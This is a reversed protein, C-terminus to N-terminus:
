PVLTVRGVQGTYDKVKPTVTKFFGFASPVKQLMIGQFTPKTNDSLTFNGSIRGNSRTISLAFAADVPTEIVADANTIGVTRVFPTGSLPTLTLVTNHTTTQHTIVSTGTVANYKSGQASLELHTWGSPYHQDDLIPRHWFFGGTIDTTAPVTDFNLGGTLLGKKAYLPIFIRWFSGGNLAGSITFATGDALIGSLSLAGTKTLSLNGLGDGQPYDSLAIGSPQSSDSPFAITYNQTANSPGLLGAPALTTASFAAHDAEITSVATPGAPGVESVNGQLEGSGSAAFNLRLELTLSPKGTRAVSLTTARSSGFRAVGDPDFNGSISLSLGDINLKGTFSGTSTVSVTIGGETSISPLTGDEPGAGIPTRDPKTPNAQVLGNYSGLLTTSTYPNPRIDAILQLGEKFLFSITPLELQADTVGIDAASAGGSLTWKSFLFGSGPTVTVTCLKGVERFSSPAFGSTFTATGATKGVVLPRTVIFTRSAILSNNGSTDTSRVELTNAGTQPTVVASWNASTGSMSTITATQFLSGNIRVAVEQIGKNDTATGTITISGGPAVPVRASAAPSTIIPLSPLVTEAVADVIHVTASPISGLQGTGATLNLKFTENAENLVSDTALNVTVDQSTVGPGFTLLQNTITSYDTGATATGGSSSTSLKCTITGESGGVRTIRVTVTNGEIEIIDKTEFSLKGPGRNFRTVKNDSPRGVILEDGEQNYASILSPANATTGLVSNSANVFGTQAATGNGFTVAGADALSGTPNNWNSHHVAYSSNAFGVVFSSSLDGPGAGVLSNTASILGSIGTTGNGFTVAGANTAVSNDWLSSVIVYNGNLLLAGGSGGVQDDITSGVLSNAASVTGSIGSTGNGFTVAGARAASPSPNNWQPSHVLYNGNSLPVVASGLSDSNSGGVLSNGASINGTSGTHGNCWTVAGADTISGNNWLPSLVVYNGNTLPALGAGVHDSFGNGVLSNTPTVLGTIGTSGDGWTAAGADTIAGNDWHQSSVVFNGNTLAIVVEGVRDNSHSGVLSNASGVTGTTAATGICWSAAGFAASWFPSLVLYNGNTLPVASLGVSDNTTGGILSNSSSVIGVTGTAGNGWTAAGANATVPSPNTWNPTLVVYNGNKLAEVDNGVRDAETNGVLANSSSITGVVGSSGSGWVAAGADAKSPTNDWTPVPVVYNGNSLVVISSGGVNDNASSGILSNAASVLGTVGATGSGFTVAGANSAVPSPNKWFPSSVLYNTNLVVVGNGVNDNATGGILSNTSSVAGVRTGNSPCWTVAGVNVKAPSPNDWLSAAVVYSGNNLVTISGGVADGTTSGVLSNAASVVVVAAGFGTNARGFTAAGAGAAAGNSWFPSSVIFNDNINVRITGSGVRDNATSGKLMSIVTGAPSYLYVAGVNATAGDDFSPDTVIFNGNPLTVVQSGFAGSGAPTPLDTQGAHAMAVMLFTAALLVPKTKM